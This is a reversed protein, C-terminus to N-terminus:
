SLFCIKLKLVIFCNGYSNQWWFNWIKTSECIKKKKEFFKLFLGQSLSFIIRKKKNKLNLFIKKNKFSLFIFFFSKKVILNKKLFFTNFSIAKFFSIHAYTFTFIVDVKEYRMFLPQNEIRNRLIENKYRLIATLSTFKFNFPRRKLRLSTTQFANYKFYYLFNKNIKKFVPWSLKFNQNSFNVACTGYYALFFFLGNLTRDTINFVERLSPSNVTM